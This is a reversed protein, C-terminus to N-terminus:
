IDGFQSGLCGWAVLLRCAKPAMHEKPWDSGGGGEAPLLVRMKRQPLVRSGSTQLKLLLYARVAGQHVCLDTSM